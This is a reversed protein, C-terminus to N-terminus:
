QYYHTNIYSIDAHMLQMISQFALWPTFHLAGQDTRLFNYEM